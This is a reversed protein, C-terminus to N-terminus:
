KTKDKILSIEKNPKWKTQKLRVTKPLYLTEWIFITDINKIAKKNRQDNRIEEMIQWIANRDKISDLWYKESIIKWM